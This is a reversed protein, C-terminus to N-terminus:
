SDGLRELYDCFASVDQALLVYCARVGGGVERVRPLRLGAAYGNRM